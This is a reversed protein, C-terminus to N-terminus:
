SGLNFLETHNRNRVKMLFSPLKYYAQFLQFLRADSSLASRHISLAYVCVYFIRVNTEEYIEKEGIAVYLIGEAGFPFIENESNEVENTKVAKVKFKCDSILKVTRIFVEVGTM